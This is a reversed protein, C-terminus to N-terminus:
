SLYLAAWSVAPAPRSEGEEDGVGNDDEDELGSDCGNELERVSSLTEPVNQHDTFRSASDEANGDPVSDSLSVEGSSSTIDEGTQVDGKGNKDPNSSAGSVATSQSSGENILQSKKEGTEIDKNGEQDGNGHFVPPKEATNRVGEHTRGDEGTVAVKPEAENLHGTPKSEDTHKTALSPSQGVPPVRGTDKEASQTQGVPSPLTVSVSQKACTSGM